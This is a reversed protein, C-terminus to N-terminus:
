SIFELEDEFLVNKRKSFLVLWGPINTHGIYKAYGVPAKGIILGIGIGAPHKVLSGAKFQSRM